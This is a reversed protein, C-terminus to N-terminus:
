SPWPVCMSSTNLSLAVGGGALRGHVASVIVSSLERLMCLTLATVFLGSALASLPLDAHKGYPNGGVCFHPGAAQLVFARAREHM